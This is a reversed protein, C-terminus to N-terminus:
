ESQALKKSRYQSPTLGTEKKFVANFTSLANFGSQYAVSLIKEDKFDPNSFLRIAYDIRYQNIWSSFNKGSHENIAQSLAKSSVSLRDALYQLNVESNLYLSEQELLERAKNHIELSKEASIGTEYKNSVLSLFADQNRFAIAVLIFILLTFSFAGAVYVPIVNISIFFYILWMTCLGSTLWLYWKARPKSRGQSRWYIQFCVGVYAFSQCQAFSYLYAGTTSQYGNPLIPAFLFVLIAPIFHFLEKRGIYFTAQLLSRGYFFLLPGVTLNFALGWNRIFLPLDIFNFFISKTIRLTLFLLLFALIQNSFPKVRAINFLLFSAM